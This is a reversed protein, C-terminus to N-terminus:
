AAHRVGEARHARLLDNFDTGPAPPLAIRVRRGERVWRLAAARAAREGAGSADNDACIIIDRVIPPLILKEIGGASLAAWGPLRTAIMAALTTEIGEAVLLSEGAPALRVAGGSVPGTFKRPPRLSAKDRGDIALWTRAAAVIGAEGVRQVAALMAPWGTGEPHRAYLSGPPLYRITPPIASLGPLRARLYTEARTGAAPLASRWMDRALAVRKQGEAAEAERRRREAEPDPAPAEGAEGSLVGLRRLAALIDALTCGAHCKVALGGRGGDRLALSASKSGHAPCPARWWGGSSSYGGLARAITEANM